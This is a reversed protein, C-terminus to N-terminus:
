KAANPGKGPPYARAGFLSSGVRVNTSGHMIALAYDDSMGMSLELPSAVRPALDANAKVAEELAGAVASRWDALTAFDRDGMGPEGITMLGAVVLHPCKEVIARALEVIADRSAVGAKSEEGSTNAQIFVRLPADRTARGAHKDLEAALKLSDVTEVVHLNPISAVAKAKNSQLHGIFHWRLDRPLVAAKDVLEQVYNEGFHLQGTASHMALVDTAPKTKSVAVLRVADAPRSAALAAARLNGSVLSWNAALDATREPTAPVSLDAMTLRAPKPLALPRTTSLGRCLTRLPLLKM